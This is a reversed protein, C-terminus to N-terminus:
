QMGAPSVAAFGVCRRTAAPHFLCVSPRVSARCNCLGQGRYTERKTSEVNRNQPEIHAHTSPPLVADIQKDIETDTDKPEASARVKEFLEVDLSRPPAPAKRKTLSDWSKNTTAATDGAAAASPRYIPPPPAPAERRKRSGGGGNQQRGSGSYKVIGQVRRRPCFVRSYNGETCRRQQNPPLFPMRGTFFSLQPTSAHNDTQLSTCVQMYGLLHWQWDSDRAEAFDLNTKGKQYLSV